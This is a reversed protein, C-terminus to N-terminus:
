PGPPHCRTLLPRRRRARRGCWGARCRPGRPRPWPEDQPDLHGTSSGGGGSQGGVPASRSIGRADRPSAPNRGPWPRTELGACGHPSPGRPGPRGRAWRLRLLTASPGPVCIARPLQRAGPRRRPPPRPQAPRMRRAGEQGPWVCSSVRLGTQASAGQRGVSASRTGMERDTAQEPECPAPCSPPCVSVESSLCRHPHRPNAPLAQPPFGRRLGLSHCGTIRASSPASLQTPWLSSSSRFTSDAGCKASVASARLHGCAPCADAEWDKARDVTRGELTRAGARTHARWRLKVQRLNGM